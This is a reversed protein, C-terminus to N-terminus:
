VAFPNAAGPPGESISPYRSPVIEGGAAHSGTKSRSGLGEIRCAALRDQRRSYFREGHPRGRRPDLDRDLRAPFRDLPDRSSPRGRRCDRGRSQHLRHRGQLEERAMRKWGCATRASGGAPLLRLNDVAEQHSLKEVGGECPRCKKLQFAIRYNANVHCIGGAPCATFGITEASNIWMNANLGTRILRANNRARGHYGALRRHPLALGASRGQQLSQVRPQRGLCLARGGAVQGQAVSVVVKDGEIRADAWVFKKDSGAIAFGKLQDGGKAVLGGGISDFSLVVKDGQIELSKYIPGSYVLDKGYTKALAWLALRKGVDQKNKPHINAAEGIDIIVAQGTAPVKLTMSQAERLEAWASDAPEPKVAMFNALQVFYFPFDGEQWEARWAKILLPFSPAINTPGAPTPKARTGSRAAFATPCFRISCATTSIPRSSTTPARTAPAAAATPREKGAAKAKAAAKKWNALQKEFNAKAAAESYSAM